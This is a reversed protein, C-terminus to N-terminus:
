ETTPELPEPIPTMEGALIAGELVKTIVGDAEEQPRETLVAHFGEYAGHGTLTVTGHCLWQDDCWGVWPGTWSGDPDELLWTNTLVVVGVDGDAQYGYADYNGVMEAQSPLRPDSWEFTVLPRQGRVHGIWDAGVVGEETYEGASPDGGVGVVSGTVRTSGDSRAVTASSLGGLLTLIVTGVLSLRLTRM